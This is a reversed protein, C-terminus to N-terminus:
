EIITIIILILSLLWYYSYHHILEVIVLYWWSWSILTEAHKRPPIYITFFVLSVMSWSFSSWWKKACSWLGLSRDSRWGTSGPHHSEPSNEADFRSPNWPLCMYVSSREVLSGNHKTEYKIPIHHYITHGMKLGMVRQNHSVHRWPISPGYFYIIKGHFGGNITPIKWPSSNTM